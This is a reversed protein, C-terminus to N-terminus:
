KLSCNARIRIWVSVLSWTAHWFVSVDNKVNIVSEYCLLLVLFPTM